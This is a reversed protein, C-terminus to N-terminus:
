SSRPLCESMINAGQSSAWGNSTTPSILYLPKRIIRLTIVKKYFADVNM